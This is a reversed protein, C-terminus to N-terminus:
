SLIKEALKNDISQQIARKLDRIGFSPNYESEVINSLEEYSIHIDINKRVKIDQIISDALHKAITLADVKTIPMFVILGDFRNLFEPTFMHRDILMRIFAGEDIDKTLVLESSGSNSTAIVICTKADVREGSRGDIIYGEDLLTLFMNLIEKDAKEIEDILLISHPHQRLSQVLIGPNNTDPSGILKDMDKQKQYYEMDLRIMNAPDNFLISALEKATQTKGVGTSGLFLLSALPKHREGLKIYSTRISQAIREIAKDQLLINKKLERELNLLKDKLQQTLTIPSQTKQSLVKHIHEPLVQNGRSPSEFVFACADDLLAIAKEPFPIHTIFYKSKEITEILTEYPVIVKYREELDPVYGMLVSLAEKPTIEYVNLLTFNKEILSNKNVFKEYLYPSTIGIFQVGKRIYRDFIDALNQRHPTGSTYLDFHDIVIIINGASKAEDFLIGLLEKQKHESDVESLVKDMQLSLIRKYSLISNSKGEYINKALTEILASKGIGDEGVLVVSSNREKSLFLQLDNIESSRGILQRHYPYPKTLEECYEDLTPTYGMAWDRGMPVKNFLNSMDWWPKRSVRQLIFKNFWDKVIIENTEELAHTKVFEEQKDEIVEKSAPLFLYFLYTLPSISILFIFIFPIAIIFVSQVFLYYILVSLRIIFGMFRSILNFSLRSGWESFSFGRTKKVTVIRKWPYFLTRILRGASFYYPLFLVINSVATLTDRIIKVVYLPYTRRM